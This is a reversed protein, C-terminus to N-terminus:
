GPERAETGGLPRRGKRKGVRGAIPGSPRQADGLPLAVDPRPAVAPPYASVLAGGPVRLARLAFYTALGSLIAVAGVVAMYSVLPLGVREATGDADRVLSVAYPTSLQRFYPRADTLVADAVEEATGADTATAKVAILSTEPIVEVVVDIGDTGRFSSPQAGQLDLIQAFTQVVQGRSLTDYFGAAEEDEQAPLVVLTTSAQYETPRLFWFGVGAGLVLLAVLVGLLLGAVWQRPREGDAGVPAPNTM